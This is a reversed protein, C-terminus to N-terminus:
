NRRFISDVVEKAKQDADPNAHFFGTNDYGATALMKNTDNDYVTVNLESLYMVLDWKWNDGVEVYIDMDEPKESIPGSWTAIGLDSIAKQVALRMESTSTDAEVMYATKASSIQNPDVITPAKMSACGTFGFLLLGIIAFQLKAKMM